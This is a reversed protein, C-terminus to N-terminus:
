KKIRQTNIPTQLCALISMVSSDFIEKKRETFSKIAGKSTQMQRWSKLCDKWDYDSDKADKSPEKILLLAGEKKKNPDKFLYVVPVQLKVLFEAKEVIKSYISQLEAEYKEEAQEDIIAKEADSFGQGDHNVVPVEPEQKQEEAPKSSTDILIIQDEKIALESENAGEPIAVPVEPKTEQKTEKQEEKKKKFEVEVEKKIKEILNKKKENIWQRMKSATEWRKSINDYHPAAKIAEKIKFDRDKDGELDM